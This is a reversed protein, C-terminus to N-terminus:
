GPAVASRTERLHQRRMDSLARLRNRIAARNARGAATFEIMDM